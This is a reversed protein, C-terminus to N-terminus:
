CWIVKISRGEKTTADEIRLRDDWSKSRAESRRDFIVLPPLMYHMRPFCPGTTNFYKAMRVGRNIFQGCCIRGAAKTLFLPTAVFVSTIREKNETAQTKRLRKQVCM